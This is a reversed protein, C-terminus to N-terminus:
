DSAVCDEDRMAKGFKQLFVSKTVKVQDRCVTEAKGVEESSRLNAGMDGPLAFKLDHNATAAKSSAYAHAVLEGATSDMVRAYEGVDCPIAAVAFNCILALTATISIKM